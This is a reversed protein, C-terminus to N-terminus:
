FHMDFGIQYMVEEMSPEESKVNGEDQTENKAQIGSKAETGNKAPSGNKAETGNKTQAGNEESNPKEPDGCVTPIGLILRIDDTLHPAAIIQHYIAEATSLILDVDLRMSLENVHKLIETFGYDKTILLDKENDLIAVCILLHFNPCPLGTWLVEWLRMIDPYSFERKFWVLLWRFCFYMNESDKAALHKALDPSVFKLLQQVNVLQLKMGAQDMDFNTAIKEMFGVFCWFTDVENGFLMLLPALIDSMGQVYGLDFNYMVYTMLLDQLTVLNKNNDGAFFPHTRDTRNVDKEVLSKRDRYDCFRSEQGATMSRWQLKMSYYEQTRTKVLAKIESNTKDWRYYDLLYKWVSSRITHAVGGRFILQKVGEVETIRGESDRLGDWKETSLPSSRHINPRPPLTPKLTVVEYEDSKRTEIRNEVEAFSLDALDDATPHGPRDRRELSVENGYYVIDTFKSFAEMATTYPRETFNSVMNWVVDSTNETFIDLEAFSKNLVQADQNSEVVMYTNRNRRTKATIVYTRLNAVFVDANGNQCHFTHQWLGQKSSFQIQKNDRSSRFFKLEALPIRVIRARAAAYDSTMNGSLTRQRRGITNVVAWEQDQGDTDVTILDNPRWEISKTGNPNEVLCLMGVSNPDSNVRGNTMKCLVGDQTFLDKCMEPNEPLEEVSSSSSM